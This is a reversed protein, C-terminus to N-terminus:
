GIDEEEVMDEGDANSGFVRRQRKCGVPKPWFLEQFFCGSSLTVPTIRKKDLVSAPANWLSEVKANVV